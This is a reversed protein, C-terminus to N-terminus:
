KKSPKVIKCLRPQDAVLLSDPGKEPRCLKFRLACSIGHFCDEDGAAGTKDDAPMARQQHLLLQEHEVPRQAFVLPLFDAIAGLGGVPDPM